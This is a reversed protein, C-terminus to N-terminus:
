KIKFLEAMGSQRNRKNTGEVIMLNKGDREEVTL